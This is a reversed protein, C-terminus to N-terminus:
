LTTRSFGLVRAAEDRRWHCADLATLLRERERAIDAPAPTSVPLPEEAQM